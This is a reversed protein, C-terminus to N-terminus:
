GLGWSYSCCLSNDNAQSDCASLPFCQLTSLTNCSPSATLILGHESVWSIQLPSQLRGMINLKNNVGGLAINLIEILILFGEAPSRCELQHSIGLETQTQNIDFMDSGGVSISKYTRVCVFVSMCLDSPSLLLKFFQSCFLPPTLSVDLSTSVTHSTLVAHRRVATQNM